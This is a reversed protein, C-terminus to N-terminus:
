ILLCQGRRVCTLDWVAQQWGLALILWAGPLCLGSRIYCGSQPTAPMRWARCDVSCALVMRFKKCFCLHSNQVIKQTRKFSNNILLRQFPILLVKLYSSLFVLLINFSSGFLLWIVKDGCPLRCVPEVEYGSEFCLQVVRIIGSPVIFKVKWKETFWFFRLHHDQM